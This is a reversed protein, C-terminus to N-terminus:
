AALLHILKRQGRRKQQPQPPKRLGIIKEHRKHFYANAKLQIEVLSNLVQLFKQFDKEVLKILETSNAPIDCSRIFIDLEPIQTTIIGLKVEFPNIPSRGLHREYGVHRTLPLFLSGGEKTPNAFFGTDLEWFLARLKLELDLNPNLRHQHRLRHVATTILLRDKEYLNKKM